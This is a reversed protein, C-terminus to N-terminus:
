AIGADLTLLGCTPGRLSARYGNPLKAKQTEWGDGIVPM